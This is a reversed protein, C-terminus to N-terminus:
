SYWLSVSNHYNVKSEICQKVSPVVNAWISEETGVLQLIEQDSTVGMAKFLVGIPVDVVFSNHALYFRDEKVIINTKSKTQASSSTVSCMLGRRGDEEVIIRNKSLQEQLLIVKESGGIIFYGGPDLPCEKLRMLESPSKGSLVCSSSKLMIPMKGIFVSKKTVLENERMFTLDVRIEGAYTLDRLRCDHPTVSSSVVSGENVSPPLVYIDNYELWWNAEPVSIRKNAQVINKIETEIFHNYADIHLKVLGKVSLFSPVLLHKDKLVKTSM